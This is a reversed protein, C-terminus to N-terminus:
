TWRTTGGQDAPQAAVRPARGAAYVASESVVFDLRRDWTEQPLRDLLQFSYGLGATIVSPALAALMRDYYGHGRGLRAGSVTFAVAPVCILTGAGLEEPELAPAASPPEPISYAGPRLESPDSVEGLRMRLHTRDAIPYLLRRGSRVADAAILKTDVEGDRPSYLVVCAAEGYARSALLCVQVGAGLASATAVPLRRRAESLVSRLYQKEDAVSARRHRSRALETPTGEPEDGGASGDAEALL